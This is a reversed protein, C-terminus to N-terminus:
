INNTQCYDKCKKIYDLIEAPSKPQTDLADTIEKEIQELVAGAKTTSKRESSVLVFALIGLLYITGVKYWELKWADSIKFLILTVVFAVIFQYLRFKM